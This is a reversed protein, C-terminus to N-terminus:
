FTIEQSFTEVYNQFEYPDANKRLTAHARKLTEDFRDGNRHASYIIVKKEPYKDMIARALGLGEDKFGMLLGVGQIDIFCIHAAILDTDHLSKLDKKVRTNRWGAARLLTVANFDDVKDDIFLINSLRQRTILDTTKKAENGTSNMKGNNDGVNVNVVQNNNNINSSPAKESGVAKEKFILRLIFILVAAGVGSFLWEQNEGVWSVADM